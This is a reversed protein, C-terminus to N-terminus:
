QVGLVAFLYASEKISIRLAEIRIIFANNTWVGELPENKWLSKLLTTFGLVLESHCLDVVLFSASLFSPQPYASSSPGMTLVIRPNQQFYPVNMRQIDDQGDLASEGVNEPVEDTNNGRTERRNERRRRDPEEKKAETNGEEQM